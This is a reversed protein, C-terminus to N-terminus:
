SRKGWDLPSSDVGETFVTSSRGCREIRSPQWFAVSRRAARQPSFQGCAILDVERQTTRLLTLPARRIEGELGGDPKPKM